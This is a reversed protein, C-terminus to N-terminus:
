DCRSTRPIAEHGVDADESGSGEAGGEGEVARVQVLNASRAPFLM